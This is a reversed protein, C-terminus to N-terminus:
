ILSSHKTKVIVPTLGNLLLIHNKYIDKYKLLQNNPLKVTKKNNCSIKNDTLSITNQNIIYLEKYTVTCVVCIDSNLSSQM